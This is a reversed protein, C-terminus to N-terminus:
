LYYSKWFTECQNFHDSKVEEEPHLIKTTTEKNKGSKDVFQPWVANTKSYSCFKIIFDMFFIRM